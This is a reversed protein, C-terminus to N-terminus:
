AKGRLTPDPAKGGDWEAHLAEIARARKESPPHSMLWAIGTSSPGMKDLKRLLEAQAARNLGAKRMVAAAFADAEFEDQRSLRAALLSALMAGVWPGIFPIFRGLEAVAVWRIANQGTWDIMRRRSHGLGVHGLEHAVISAVEDTSVRGLRHQDLVGSTVFVRGDPAALGNFAPVDYVHAKLHPIELARGLRRVAAELEPHDLPRAREALERKLRWASFRWAVLAYGIVLLFPLLKLM